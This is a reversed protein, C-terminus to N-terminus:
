EAATLALASRLGESGSGRTGAIGSLEFGEEAIVCGCAEGLVRTVVVEEEITDRGHLVLGDGGFGRGSRRRADDIFVLVGVGGVLM